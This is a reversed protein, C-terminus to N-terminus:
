PVAEPGMDVHMEYFDILAAEDFAHGGAHAPHQGLGDHGLHLGGEVRPVPSGGCKGARTAPRGRTQYSAM